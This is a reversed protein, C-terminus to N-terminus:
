RHHQPAHQRAPPHGPRADHGPTTSGKERGGADKKTRSYPQNALKLPAQAHQLAEVGAWTHLVRGHEDCAVALTKVGLDVGVRAPHRNKPGRRLHHPAAAVGTIAVVWRGRQFRSSAAYVHLRGSGLMQTLKGTHEGARLESLKPFRPGRPGTARAPSTQGPKSQSRIRFAPPSTHRSTLRPFGAAKGARQGTRSTSWNALAAGANVPATEFM